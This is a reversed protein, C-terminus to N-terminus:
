RPQWGMKSEFCPGCYDVGHFNVGFKGGIDKRCVICICGVDMKGMSFGSSCIEDIAEKNPELKLREQHAM